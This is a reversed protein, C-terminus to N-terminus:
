TPPPLEDSPDAPATWDPEAVTPGVVFAETVGTPLEAPVPPAVVIPPPPLEAVSEIPAACIPPPFVDAPEIPVACDRDSSAWGVADAPSLVTVGAAFTPPEPVPGPFLAVPEIPARLQELPDPM